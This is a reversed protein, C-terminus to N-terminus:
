QLALVLLTCAVFLYAKDTIGYPQLTILRTLFRRRIARSTPFIEVGAHLNFTAHREPRGLHPLHHAM